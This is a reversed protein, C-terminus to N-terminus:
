FQILSPCFRYKGYRNQLTGYRDAVSRYRGVASQLTGYCKLSAETANWLLKTANRMTCSACATPSHMRRRPPLSASKGFSRPLVQKCLKVSAQYQINYGQCNGDPRCGDGRSDHRVYRRQLLLAEIWWYWRMLLLLRLGVGDTWRNWRPVRRNGVVWRRSLCLWLRLLKDNLLRCRPM